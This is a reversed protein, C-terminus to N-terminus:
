ACVQMADAAKIPLLEAGFKLRGQSHPSNPHKLDLWTMAEPEQTKWDNNLVVRRQATRTPNTPHDSPRTLCHSVFVPEQSWFKAVIDSLCALFYRRYEVWFLKKLAHTLFLLPQQLYKASKESRNIGGARAQTRLAQRFAPQLDLYGEAIADDAELIDKDWVQIKLRESLSTSPIHPVILPYM